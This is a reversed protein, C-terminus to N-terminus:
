GGREHASSPIVAFRPLGRPPSSGRHPRTRWSATGLPLNKHPSATAASRGCPGKGASRTQKVTTIAKDVRETVQAQPTHEYRVHRAIHNKEAERKGTARQTGRRSRVAARNPAAITAPQTVKDCPQNASRGAPMHENRPHAQHAASDPQLHSAARRKAAGGAPRDAVPYTHRGTFISAGPIEADPTLLEASHATWVCVLLADRSTIKSLGAPLCPIASASM